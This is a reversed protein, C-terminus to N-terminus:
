TVSHETQFKERSLAKFHDEFKEHNTKSHLFIPPKSSQPEDTINQRKM